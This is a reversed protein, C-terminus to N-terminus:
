VICGITFIVKVSIKSYLKGISPSCIASALSGITFILSFEGLSFGQGKIVYSIFLLMINQSVGFPIVQLLMCMFIILYKHEKLKKITVEM